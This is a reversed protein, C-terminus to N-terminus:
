LGDSNKPQVIIPQSLVRLRPQAEGSQELWETTIQAPPPLEGAPGVVFWLVSPGPPLHWASDVAGWFRFSGKASRQREPSLQNLTTDQQVFVLADVEAAVNTQPRLVIQLPSDPHFRPVGTKSASAGQADRMEKVAGDLAMSYSPLPTGAPLLVFVVVAAAASVLAATMGLTWLRYPSRAPRRRRQAPTQKASSPLLPEVASHIRKRFAEDAPRFLALARKAEESSSALRELAAREESPLTGAALQEFRDDHRDAEEKLQEAAVKGVQRLLDDTM